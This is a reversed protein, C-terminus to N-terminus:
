PPPSAPGAWEATDSVLELNWEDDSVGYAIGNDGVWLVVPEATPAAKFWYWGCDDPKESTWKLEAARLRDVESLAEAGKVARSKITPWNRDFVAVARPSIDPNHVLLDRVTHMIDGNESRLRKVEALLAAIHDPAQSVAVRDEDRRFYADGEEDYVGLLLVEVHMEASVGAGDGRWPGPSAAAWIREIDALEEDTM